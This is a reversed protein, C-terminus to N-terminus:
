NQQELKVKHEATKAWNTNLKAKLKEEAKAKLKSKAKSKVQRKAKCKIQM